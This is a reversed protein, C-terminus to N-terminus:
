QGKGVSAGEGTSPAGPAPSEARGGGRTNAEIAIGLNLGEAIALLLGVSGIGYL